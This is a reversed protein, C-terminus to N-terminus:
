VNVQPERNSAALMFFMKYPIYTSLFTHLAGQVAQSNFHSICIFPRAEGVHDQCPPAHVIFELLVSVCWLAVGGM